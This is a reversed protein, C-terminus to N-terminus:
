VIQINMPLFPSYRRGTGPRSARASSPRSPPQSPTQCPPWTDGRPRKAGPKSTRASSARRFHPHSGSASQGRRHRVQSDAIEAGSGRCSKPRQDDGASDQVDEVAVPESVSPSEVRLTKLMEVDDGYKIFDSAHVTIREARHYSEVSQARPPTHPVVEIVGILDLPHKGNRETGPTNPRSAKRKQTIVSYTDRHERKRAPSGDFNLMKWSEDEEKQEGKQEKQHEKEEENKAQGGDEEKKLPKMGGGARKTWVYEENMVKTLKEIAADRKLSKASRLPTKRGQKQISSETTEQEIVSEIHEAIRSMLVTNQLKTQSDLSDEKLKELIDDNKKLHQMTAKATEMMGPKHPKNAVLLQSWHLSHDIPTKLHDDVMTHRHHLHSEHHVHSKEEIHGKTADHAFRRASLPRAPETSTAKRVANKGKEKLASVILNLSAKPVSDQQRAAKPFSSM